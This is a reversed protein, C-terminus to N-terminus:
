VKANIKRIEFTKGVGQIRAEILGAEVLKRIINAKTERHMKIRMEWMLFLSGLILKITFISNDKTAITNM